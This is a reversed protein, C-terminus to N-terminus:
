VGGVPVWVNVMFAGEILSALEVAARADAENQVKLAKPGNEDRYEIALIRSGELLVKFSKTGDNTIGSIYLIKDKVNARLEGVLDFFGNKGIIHLGGHVMRSKALFNAVSMPDSFDVHESIFGHEKGAPVKLEESVPRNEALEKLSKGIRDVFDQLTKGLWFKGKGQYSLELEVSTSKQWEKLTVLLVLHGRKGTGDYIYSNYDTHYDFQYTDRFKFVFRPLMIEASVGNRTSVKVVYPWNTIFSPLDELVAEVAEKPANVSVSSNKRKM